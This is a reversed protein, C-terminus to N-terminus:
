IIGVFDLEQQMIYFYANQLTHIFLQTYELEYTCFSSLQNDDDVGDNFLSIIYEDYGLGLDDPILEVGFTKLNDGDKYFINDDWDDDDDEDDFEEEEDDDIYDPFDGQEFGFDVLYQTTVLIPQLQSINFSLNDDFYIKDGIVGFVPKIGEPTLLLNGKRLENSDM